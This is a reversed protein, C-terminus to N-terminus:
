RTWETRCILLGEGPEISLSLHQVIAKEYDPTQLTVDEFQIQNKQLTKITSADKPQQGNRRLYLSFESLREVYSSFRGLSGFELILESFGNAFM